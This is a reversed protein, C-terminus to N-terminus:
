RVDDNEAGDKDLEALCQKLQEKLRSETEPNAVTARLETSKQQKAWNPLRRIDGALNIAFSGDVLATKIETFIRDLADSKVGGGRSVCKCVVPIGKMEEGGDVAPPVDRYGVIGRGYCLKCGPKAKTLDISSVSRIRPPPPGPPKIVEGM